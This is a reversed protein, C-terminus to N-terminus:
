SNEDYLKSWQKLKNEKNRVANELEEQDFVQLKQLIKIMCYVDGIEQILKSRNSDLGFRQIKCLIQSVEACEEQLIVFSETVKDFTL